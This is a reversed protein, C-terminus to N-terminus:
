KTFCDLARRSIRKNWITGAIKYFCFRTPFVHLTYQRSISFHLWKLTVYVIVYIFTVLAKNLWLWGSLWCGFLTMTSTCHMCCANSCLHCIKKPNARLVPAFLCVLLVKASVCMCHLYYQQVSCLFATLIQYRDILSPMNRRVTLQGTTFLQYLQNWKPDM